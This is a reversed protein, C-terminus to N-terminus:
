CGGAFYATLFDFIDQVTPVATGDGGVNANVSGTFYDTLFDFIDQVTIGGAKNYDAFCCPTTAGGGANCDSAGATFAAGASGSATCGSSTVIACRAGICCRGNAATGPVTITYSTAGGGDSTGWDGVLLYYTTGATLASSGSDPTSLDMPEADWCALETFNAANGCPGGSVLVVVGDYEMNITGSLTGSASPTMTFWVSNDLGVATTSNCSGVPEQNENAAGTTDILGSQTGSVVTATACTDNTAPQPSPCTNPSCTTGDGQYSGGFTGCLETSLLVCTGDLDCCAGAVASAINLTFVGGAPTSGFSAVRVRVNQNASLQVFLVSLLGTGSDDDCALENGGCADLVSVVTDSQVSGETDLRYVGAAPATFTYWVDKNSTAQCSASGDTTAQSNDGVNAGVNATAPNACLDNTPPQPCANPTCTTGAGLFTSPAVCSAASTITCVGGLCCAGPTGLNTVTLTYGATATGSFRGVRIIYTTGPTLTVGAIRSSAGTGCGTEDDDCAVAATQGDAYTSASVPCVNNHISVVSDFNGGTCTDIRWPGASAPTFYWYVDAGTSGTCAAGDRTWGTTDAQSVAGGAPPITFSGTNAGCVDNAPQAMAAGAALGLCVAAATLGSTCATRKM